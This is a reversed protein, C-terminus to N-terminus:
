TQKLAGPSPRYPARADYAVAAPTSSTDVMSCRSKMPPIMRMPGCSRSASAFSPLVNRAASNRAM